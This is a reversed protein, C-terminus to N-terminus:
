SALAGKNITVLISVAVPHAPDAPKDEFTIVQLQVNSFLDTQSALQDKLALVADKNRAHANITLPTGLTKQDISLSDLVVGSPVNKAIALLLTSYNTGKDLIQKAIALNSRFADADTKTSGYSQVEKSNDDVRSQANNRSVILSVYAFVVIGAVLAIAVLAIIIYNALIVNVRGARIAAKQDYPLLNIM